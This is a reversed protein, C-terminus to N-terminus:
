RGICPTWEKRPMQVSYARLLMDPEMKDNGFLIDGYIANGFRENNDGSLAARERERQMM